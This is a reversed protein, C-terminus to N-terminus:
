NSVTVANDLTNTSWYEIKDGILCVLLSGSQTMHRKMYGWDPNSVAEADDLTIVNYM